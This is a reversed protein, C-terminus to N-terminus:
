ADYGRSRLGMWHIGNGGESVISGRDGIAERDGRAMMDSKWKERFRMWRLIEDRAEVVVGRMGVTSPGERRNERDRGKGRESGRESVRRQSGGERQM